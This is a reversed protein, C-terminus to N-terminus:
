GRQAATVRVHMGPPVLRPLYRGIHLPVRVCGHSAPRHPVRRAGHVAIGGNFYLPNFLLGLPARRWGRIRRFVRYRGIPTVARECHGRHCYRRGTGTSIHTALRLRGNRWLLMLQRRKDIEIRNPRRSSSAPGIRRPHALRRRTRPGVVGDVPLRQSKQFAWVATRTKPGYAGDVPGPDFRLQVLRRQVRRVRVGHDGLRITPPRRAAVLLPDEVATARPPQAVGAPWGGAVAAVALVATILARACARLPSM